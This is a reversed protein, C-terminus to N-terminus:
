SSPSSLLALVLDIPVGSNAGGFRTMISANVAIVDGQSNFVPSGSGGGTTPADYVISGPVVDGIHGQTALPRIGNQDAIDQILSKLEHGSKKLLANVTRGEMRAMLAEVGVPYGLVIVAEGTIAEKTPKQIPIPVIDEPIPFLQGLAVDGSDSKRVVSLEYPQPHGPFYAVIALLRPEIGSQVMQIATHDMIWPEVIHRNTVILGKDNILFGSGMYEMPISTVAKPEGEEFFGYGIYLFCVSPGYHKILVEASTQEAELAKLRRELSRVEKSSADYGQRQQVEMIAVLRNIEAQRTTLEDSMRHREEAIRQELVAQTLRTSELEKSLAALQQKYDQQSSYSYYGVGGLAGVLLVFLTVLTVRTIRTSHRRVDYALQGVFPKVRGRGAKKAEAAVDLADRLIEPARKCAAYEEARIRFRLKPGDSGLQIIDKDQLTAEVLPNHNVLTTVDPDQNKLHIECDAQFVEVRRPVGSTPSDSPFVLDNDPASGLSVLARDFYQTEGRSNGSLHILAFKM